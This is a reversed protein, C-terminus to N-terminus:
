RGLGRRSPQEGRQNRLQRYRRESEGTTTLEADAHAGIHLLFSSVQCHDGYLCQKLIKNTGDRSERRRVARRKLKERKGRM